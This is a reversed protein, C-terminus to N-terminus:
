LVSRRGAQRRPTAGYLFAAKFKLPSMDMPAKGTLQELSFSRVEKDETATEVPSAHEPLALSPAGSFVTPPAAGVDQLSNSTKDAPRGPAAPAAPAKSLDPKVLGLSAIVDPKSEASKPAPTRLSQPTRTSSSASSSWRRRRWRTCAIVDAKDRKVIGVVIISTKDPSQLEFSSGTPTVIWDDPVDLLVKPKLAPRQGDQGRECRVRASWHCARWSAALCAAFRRFLLFLM